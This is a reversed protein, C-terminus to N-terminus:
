LIALAAPALSSYKLYKLPIEVYIGQKQSSSGLINESSGGRDFFAGGGKFVYQKEFFEGGLCVKSTLPFVGGGM